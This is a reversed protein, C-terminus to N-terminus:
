TKKLPNPFYPPMMSCILKAQSHQFVAEVDEQEVLLSEDEIDERVDEVSKPQVPPSPAENPLIAVDLDNQEVHDSPNEQNSMVADEFDNLEAQAPPNDAHDEVATWDSNIYGQVDLHNHPKFLLGNDLTAELYRLIRHVADMHTERPDHMYLSVVGVVYAIDHRTHVLYILRGVLRQYKKTDVETGVCKSLKHNAEFSSNRQSLFIGRSSRAVEIGLFYRLSGLDKVEFETTLWQKISNIESEDDGM